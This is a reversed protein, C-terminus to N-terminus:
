LIKVNLHIDGKDGLLSKTFLLSDSFGHKYFYNSKLYMMEYLISTYKILLDKSEDSLNSKLLEFLQSEKESLAQFDESNELRYDIQELREIECCTLFEEFGKWKKPDCSM